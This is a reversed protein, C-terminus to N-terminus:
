PCVRRSKQASYEHILGADYGVCKRRCLWGLASFKTNRVFPAKVNKVKLLSVRWYFTHERRRVNRNLSLHQIRKEVKLGRLSGLTLGLWSSISQALGMDSFSADPQLGVSNQFCPTQRPRKTLRTVDRGRTPVKEWETWSQEAVLLLQSATGVPDEGWSCPPRGFLPLLLKITFLTWIDLIDIKWGVLKM